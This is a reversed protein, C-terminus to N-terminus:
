NYEGVEELVMKAWEYRESDPPDNRKIARALSILNFIKSWTNMGAVQRHVPLPIDSEPCPPFNM